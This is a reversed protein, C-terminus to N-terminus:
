APRYPDLRVPEKPEAKWPLIAIWLIFPFINLNVNRANFVYILCGALVIAGRRFDKAFALWIGLLLVINLAMGPIGFEVVNKVYGSHIPELIQNEGSLNLGSGLIPHELLVGLGYAWTEARGSFGTGSGRYPNNLMLVDETIFTNLKMGLSPSTLVILSAAVILGFLAIPFNRLAIRTRPMEALVVVLAAGLLAARAQLQLLVYLAMAYCLYRLWARRNLAMIAVAGFLFEGGLNPHQGFYGARGWTRVVFFAIHIFSAVITVVALPAADECFSKFTTRRALLDMGMFGALFLLTAQMSEFMYKHGPTLNQV